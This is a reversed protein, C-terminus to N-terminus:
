PCGKLFRLFDWALDWPAKYHALACALTGLPPTGAKGPNSSPFKFSGEHPLWTKAICIKLFM